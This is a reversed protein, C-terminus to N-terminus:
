EPIRVWVCMCVYVGSIAPLCLMKLASVSYLLFKLGVIGRDPGDPPGFHGQPAKRDESRVTLRTAAQSARGHM